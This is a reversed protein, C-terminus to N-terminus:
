GACPFEKACKPCKMRDGSLRVLENPPISYGCEPCIVNLSSLVKVLDIKKVMPLRDNQAMQHRGLWSRSAQFRKM